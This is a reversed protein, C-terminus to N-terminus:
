SRPLSCPKCVCVVNGLSLVCCASPFSLPPQHSSPCMAMYIVKYLAMVGEQSPIKLLADFFSTYQIGGPSKRQAMMRTQLLGSVCEEHLRNNCVHRCIHICRNMFSNEAAVPRLHYRYLFSHQQANGSDTLVSSPPVKIVDFPNTVTPGLIAATGGSIMSQWAALQVSDGDLKGACGGQFLQSMRGRPNSIIRQWAALQVTDGDQKSACAGPLLAYAVLGIM